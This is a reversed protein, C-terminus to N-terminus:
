PRPLLGQLVVDCVEALADSLELGTRAPMRPRALHFASATIVAAAVPANVPRLEGARIGREVLREVVTRSFEVHRDVLRRAPADEALDEVLADALRLEVGGIVYDRIQEALPTDPDIRELAARGLRHLFRDLVLLVLQEKSPAIEYLTRRSCGLADALGGVTFDAFGRARFLAELDDLLQRHRPGLRGEATRSLLPRPAGALLSRVSPSLPASM